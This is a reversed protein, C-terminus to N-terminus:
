KVEIGILSLLKKNGEYEDEYFQTFTERDRYRIVFNLRGMKEILNPDKAAVACAESLTEIIEASTGKPAFLGFWIKLPLDIGLEKTTPVDEFGEIRENGIVALTKLGFISATSTMDTSITAQGGMVAKSQNSANGVPVYKFKVDYANALSAQAIHPISGPAPGVAVISEGAKAADILDQMSNYPSDPAVMVALQNQTLGCIPVVDDKKYTLKRLHPQVTVPAIPTYLLTYGDPDAMAFQATGVTGGAGVINVPVLEADMAKKMAEIFIRGSTDSNGGAGYNIVVRIPGDPYEDAAAQSMTAALGVAMGILMKRIPSKM